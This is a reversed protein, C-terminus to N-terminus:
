GGTRDREYFDVTCFAGEMMHNGETLSQAMMLATM